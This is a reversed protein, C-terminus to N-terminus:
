VEVEPVDGERRVAVLPAEAIDRRGPRLGAPPPAPDGDAGIRHKDAKLAAGVRCVSDLPAGFPQPELGLEPAARGCWRRSRRPPEHASSRSGISSSSISGMTGLLLRSTRLPAVIRTARRGMIARTPRAMM